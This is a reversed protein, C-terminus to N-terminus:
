DDIVEGEIVATRTKAPESSNSFSFNFVYNPKTPENKEAGYVRDLANMTAEMRNRESKGDLAIDLLNQQLDPGKDKLISLQIDKYAVFYPHKKIKNVVSPIAAKPIEPCLSKVAQGEKFGVKLLEVVQRVDYQFGGHEICTNKVVPTLASKERM